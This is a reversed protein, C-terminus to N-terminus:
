SFLYSRRLEYMHMYASDENEIFLNLPPGSTKLEHM